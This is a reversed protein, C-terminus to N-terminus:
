WDFNVALGASPGAHDIDRAQYAVRLSPYMWSVHRWGVDALLRVGYDELVPQDTVQVSLVIPFRPVVDWTFAGEYLSGLHRTTAAGLVLNSRQESGFRLRGRVGLAGFFARDASEEPARDLYARGYQARLMIAFWAGVREEIEAYAYNYGVKRCMYAGDELCEPSADIVDKPGGIGGMTGFGLRLSYVPQVFRYLFDIETHVYQDLDQSVGDFDVYDLFLTVRSRDDLVPPTPEVSRDVAVRRPSEASGIAPAPEVEGSGLTEVFYAVSPPMVAEGPITARLYGDGSAVLETRQFGPAEPSRWYLWARQVRSPAAVAFALPVSAGEYARLPPAHVLPEGGHAVPAISALRQMSALAERDEPPVARREADERIRQRLAGVETAIAHAFPTDPHDELFATWVEVRRELPQGLTARWAERVASAQDVEAHAAELRRALAEAAGDDGATRRAWPDVAQVPDSARTVADGVAVRPHLHDPARAIAVQRGVVVARLTGLPFRDRVVEGSVPHTVEIVHHLTLESGEAVGDDTGLDVYVDREDIRLVTGGAHAVGSATLLLLILSAKMM